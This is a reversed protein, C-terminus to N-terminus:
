LAFRDWPIFTRSAYQATHQYHTARRDDSDEDDSSDPEAAPVSKSRRTLTNGGNSKPGFNFDLEGLKCIRESTMNSKAGRLFARYQKRQTHVWNGLEPFARPVNTHHHSRKYEKLQGWRDEWPIGAVWKEPKSYGVDWKFGADTLKRVQAEKLKGNRGAPAVGNQYAEYKSRMKTAWYSLPHDKPPNKEHEKMYAIWEDTRGETSKHSTLPVFDFGLETLLAFRQTNLPTPLGQKSDAYHKRQRLIWSRLRTFPKAPVPKNPHEQQFAKLQEYLEQWETEEKSKLALDKMGVEELQARQSLTLYSQKNKLEKRMIQTWRRLPKFRDEQPNGSVKTTGYLDRYEELLAFSADWDDQSQPENAALDRGNLM